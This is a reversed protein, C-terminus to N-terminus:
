LVRNGLFPVPTDGNNVLSVGTQDEDFFFGGVVWTFASTTNGLRAEVSTQDSTQTVQFRGGLDNTVYNIDGKRYAPLVNLTAFGLNWTLLA